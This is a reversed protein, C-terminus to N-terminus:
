RSLGRGRGGDRTQEREHEPAGGIERGMWRNYRARHKRNEEFQRWDVAAEKEAAV